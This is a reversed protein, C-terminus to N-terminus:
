RQRGESLFEARQLPNRNYPVALEGGLAAEGQHYAGGLDRDISTPSPRRTPPPVGGAADDGPPRGVVPETQSITTRDPLDCARWCRMRHGSPGVDSPSLV